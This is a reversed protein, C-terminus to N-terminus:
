LSHFVTEGEYRILVTGDPLGVADFTRDSAIYGLANRYGCFRPLVSDSWTYVGNKFSIRGAFLPIDKGKLEFSASIVSQTHEMSAYVLRDAFIVADATNEMSVYFTDYAKKATHIDQNPLFVTIFRPLEEGSKLKLNEYRNLVLFDEVGKWKPYDHHSIYRVGNSGSLLYSIKDDIAAYRVDAYDHWIDAGGVYGDMRQAPMDNVSLMRYGKAYQPLHEFYENRIGVLGGNYEKITCDKKATVHQFSVATGDAMSVFSVDQRVRGLGRDITMSAGYSDKGDYIRLDDTYRIIEQNSLGPNEPCGSEFCMTGFCSAPPATITWLKDQPLVFALASNRYAFSSMTEPTRHVLAGGFPYNRVSATDTEFQEKSVPAIGEGLCYHLMYAFILFAPIDPEFDEMTQHDKASAICRAPDKDLFTGLPHGAQMSEYMSLSLKELYAAYPDDFLLRTAAHVVVQDSFRNYWWDHSQVPVCGGDAGSWFKFIRNYVQKWNNRIGPLEKEGTLLTYLCIEARYAFPLSLYTPHMTSHNETTYDPHLTIHDIKTRLQTGDTLVESSFMDLPITGSDLIWRNASEKWASARPDDPFLSAAVYIGVATWANEEAQTNFYVGDRPEYDVWREAYDTIVNYAMQRTEEDLDEWLFWLALGFYSLGYGVQSAQFFKARHGGWAIHNGGWKTNAEFKNKGDVRVCDEPGTDHTFCSYRVVKIAMDLVEKKSIGALSEDFEGFKAAFALIYSLENQDYGYWHCGSFLYGSNPRVDWNHFNPCVFRLFKLVMAHIQQMEPTCYESKPFPRPNTYSM